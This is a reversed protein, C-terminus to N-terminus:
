RLDIGGGRWRARADAILALHGDHLAGMTPVLALRGREARLVRAASEIEALTRAIKMQIEAM